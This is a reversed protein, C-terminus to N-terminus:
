QQTLWYALWTTYDLIDVVGDENLDALVDDTGWTKLIISLDVINVTGDQNLDGPSYSVPVPDDGGTQDGGLSGMCVVLTNSIPSVAGQSDFARVSVTYRGKVSWGHMAEQGSGSAVYGSTPMRMTQNDGWDFVYYVEDDEPDDATARFRHLEGSSVQVDCSAVCSADPICQTQGICASPATCSQKKQGTGCGNDCGVDSWTTCGTCQNGSCTADVVCRTQSVCSSPATCNEQRQGSSCAGGCVGASWATCGTCGQQCDGYVEMEMLGVDHSNPGIGTITFTLSTVTRSSFTVTTASGNDLLPGVSVPSGSSFSLTGATIQENMGGSSSTRDYLVVRDITVPSAWTLKLWAGLHTPDETVWEKTSDGPFGDIVGDIAKQATQGHIVAESNSTVTSSLAYNTCQGTACNADAVCRSQGVCASPAGCTQRKLGTGCGNGCGVDNWSTCSNCQVGTKTVKIPGPPNPEYGLNGAHDSVHLGYYSSAPPTVVVSANTWSDETGQPAAVTQALQWQCGNRDQEDCESGQGDNDYNARWIEARALHSGGADTSSFTVTTTGDTTRPQIDFSTVVPGQTDGSDNDGIAITASAPSGVTYGTGATITVVAQESGEVSSDDKPRITVTVSGQADPIALGSGELVTSNIVIDYDTGRVAAGSTSFNVLLPAGSNVSRTVTFTGTDSPEAANADTTQVTVVPTGQARATRVDSVAEILFFGSIIVILLLSSVKNQM